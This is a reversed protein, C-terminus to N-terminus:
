FYRPSRIGEKKFVFDYSLLAEFTGYNYNRIAQTGFESAFGIKFQNTIQYQTFVGFAADLRYMAGIWLKDNSIGAISFDASLPAGETFKLQVSPRLKWESNAKFVGGTVLFYHRRELNTSTVDYSQELVRPVSIGAFFHDAHYYVGGGFNPNVKNRISQNLKPDGDTIADLTAKGISIMNLGGKLGFVLKSGRKFKLSYSFDGYFMTQRIPGVEDAVATLGLGVSRYKLPSHISMTTSRPRGTFGVWQERHITTVNLMDRSGAYAPNVFLTNDFYQTFHPDQQAFSFGGLLSVLVLLSNRFNRMIGRKDKLTCM